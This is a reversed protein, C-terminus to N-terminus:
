SWRGFAEVLSNIDAPKPFALSGGRAAPSALRANFWGLGCIAGVVGAAITVVSEFTKDLHAVAFVPILVLRGILYGGGVCAILGLLRLLTKM